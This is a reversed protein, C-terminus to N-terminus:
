RKAEPSFLGGQPGSPGSPKTNVDVLQLLLEKVAAVDKDMTEIREYIDSVVDFIDKNGAEIRDVKQYM